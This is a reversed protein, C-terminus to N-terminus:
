PLAGHSELTTELGAAFRGPLVPGRRQRRSLDRALRGRHPHARRWCRYACQGMARAPLPGCMSPQGLAAFRAVRCDLYLEGGIAPSSPRHLAFYNGEVTEDFIACDKNHPPFIMGHSEIRRWDTTSRLGVGVGNASVETYTLYYTDGIQTVRCDEIGYTELEGRGFIPPLGNERFTAGDRSAVLRLHSLTSLYHEGNYRFVRPDTRDLKPDANDFEMIKLAGEPTFIPFSTRDEKQEPREAM